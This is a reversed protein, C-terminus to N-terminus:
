SDSSEGARGLFVPADDNLTNHAIVIGGESREGGRGEGSVITAYKLPVFLWETVAVFFSAPDSKLSSLFIRQFALDNLSPTLSVTTLM